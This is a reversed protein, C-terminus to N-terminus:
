AGLANSLAAVEDACQEMVVHTRKEDLGLRNRAPSGDLALELGSSDQAYSALLIAIAVVDRLDAEVDDERNHNDQEGVATAM